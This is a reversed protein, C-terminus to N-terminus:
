GTTPGTPPPLEEPEDPPEGDLDLPPGTGEAERMM